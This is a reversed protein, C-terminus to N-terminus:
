VEDDEAFACGPKLFSLCKALKWRQHTHVLWTHRSIGGTIGGGQGVILDGGVQCEPMYTLTLYCLTLSKSPDQILYVLM